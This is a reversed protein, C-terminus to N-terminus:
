LWSFSWTLMVRSWPAPLGNASRMLVVSTALLRGCRSVCVVMELTMFCVNPVSLMIPMLKAVVVLGVGVLLCTPAVDLAEVSRDVRLLKVFEGVNESSADVENWVAPADIARIGVSPSGALM